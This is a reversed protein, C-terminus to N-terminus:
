NADAAEARVAEEDFDNIAEIYDNPAAVTVDFPEEIVDALLTEQTTNWLEHDNYGWPNDGTPRNSELGTTMTARALDMDECQEPVVECGISLAADLNEDAFTLGMAHAARVVRIATDLLAPDDLTEQMVVWNGAPLGQFKEPLISRKVLGESELAVFDNVAGAFADITGEQLALYSAPGGEGVAIIEVDSEDLGADAIAARVLNMEGGSLDTVGLTQGALDAVDQIPSEDPVVIDFSGKNYGAIARIPHGDSNAILISAVDLIGITANGSILQQAVVQSGDVTSLTVDLGQEAFYRDTAVLLGPRLIGPYPFPLLVEIASPAASSGSPGTTPSGQGCSVILLSSVLIAVSARLRM